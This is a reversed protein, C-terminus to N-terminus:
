SAVSDYQVDPSLQKRRALVRRVGGLQLVVVVAAAAIAALVLLWTQRLVTWFLVTHLTAFVALPYNWRQIWKWRRRGLRRIAADSSISGLTLALVAAVVGTWVGIGFNDVRLSGPTMRGDVFFYTAIDGGFHNTLSIVTHVIAFALAALGTDRRLDTSFPNPRDRLVNLPGVSLTVLLAGMSAYAFVLSVQRRAPMGSPLVVTVVAACAVLAALWVVAHVLRKQRRLNRRPRVPATM